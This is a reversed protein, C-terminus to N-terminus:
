CLLEKLSNKYDTGATACCGSSSPSLKKVVFFVCIVLFLRKKQGEDYAWQRGACLRAPM